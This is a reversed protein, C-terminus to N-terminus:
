PRADGEVAGLSSWLNANEPELEIRARLPSPFKELRTRAGALDGQAALAGAVPLVRGVEAFVEGQFVPRLQDVRVVEAHDGRMLALDMRVSLGFTSSVEGAALGALAGEM